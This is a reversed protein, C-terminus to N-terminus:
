DNETFMRESVHNESIRFPVCSELTISYQVAGVGAPLDSGTIRPFGEEVSFYNRENLVWHDTDYDQLKAYGFEILTALFRDRAGTDNAGLLEDVEAILSNLTRASATAAGGIGLKQHCIWIHGSQSDLQNESSIQLKSDASSLQTKLEILCDGVLFDQEDGHPGRWAAVADCAPLRRLFIDRLLLIEGFLGIIQSETLRKDRRNKLLERWRRLRALIIDIGAQDDSRRLQRTATMLDACLARFIDIQSKDLLRIEFDWLGDGQDQLSIALSALKPLKIPQTERMTAKFAFIYNGQHDKGRFLDLPHEPDARRLHIKAADKSPSIADWHDPM